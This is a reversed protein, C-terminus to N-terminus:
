IDVVAEPVSQKFQMDCYRAQLLRKVDWFNNRGQVKFLFGSGHVDKVCEDETFSLVLRLHEHVSLKMNVTVTGWRITKAQRCIESRFMQNDAKKMEKVITTIEVILVNM